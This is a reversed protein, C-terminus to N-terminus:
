ILVMEFQSRQQFKWTRFLSFHVSYPEIMRGESEFDSAVELQALREDINRYFRLLSNKEFNSAPMYIDFHDSSIKPPEYEFKTSFILV